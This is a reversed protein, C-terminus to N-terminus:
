EEPSFMHMWGDKFQIKGPGEMIWDNVSEITNLPNEYILEGKVFPEKKEGILPSGTMMTAVVWFYLGFYSVSIKM